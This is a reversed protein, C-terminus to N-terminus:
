HLKSLKTKSQLSNKQERHHLVSIELHMLMKVKSTSDNVALSDKSVARKFSEPTKLRIKNWWHLPITTDNKAALEKESPKNLQSFGIVILAILVFGLITNKDM